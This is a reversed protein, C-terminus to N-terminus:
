GCDNENMFHFDLLLLVITIICFNVFLQVKKRCEDLVSAVSGTKNPYVVLEEEKLSPSVFVCKFQRKNEFEDVKM